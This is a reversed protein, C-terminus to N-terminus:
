FLKKLTILSFLFFIMASNGNNHYYSHVHLRKWMKVYVRLFLLAFLVM